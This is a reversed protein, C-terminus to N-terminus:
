CFLSHCGDSGPTLPVTATLWTAEDVPSISRALSIAADATDFLGVTVILGPEPAWVVASRGADTYSVGPVGNVDVFELTAEQTLPNAFMTSVGRVASMEAIYNDSADSWVVTRSAAGEYWGEYVPTLGAPLTALDWGEGDDSLTMGQAIAVLAERDLAGQAWLRVNGSPDDLFLSAYGPAMDGFQAADWPLLEVTGDGPVMSPEGLRTTITLATVGSGEAFWTQTYEEISPSGDAGEARTALIAGSPPAPPLLRPVDALVPASATLRAFGALADVAPDLPAVTTPPVTTPPVTTSTVETSSVTASTDSPTVTAPDRRSLAVGGAVLAVVAAAAAFVQWGRRHGSEREHEIPVVAGISDDHVRRLADEVDVRRHVDALLGEAAQRGIRDIDDM